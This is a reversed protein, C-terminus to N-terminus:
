RVKLNELKKMKLASLKKTRIQPAKSVSWITRFSQLYQSSSYILGLQFNSGEDSRAEQVNQEDECSTHVEAALREQRLMWITLPTNYWGTM